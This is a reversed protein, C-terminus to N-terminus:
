KSVKKLSEIQVKTLEEYRNGKARSIQALVYADVINDSDNEYGWRKYVDKMVINKAVNGKGSVFKKLTTPPVEYYSIGDMHLFSRILWGLGYQTGVGAGKSGFSFGEISVVDDKQCRNVVERAIDIFRQPDKDTESFIDAEMIMRGSEHLIVMGTTTSPDIGVYNM